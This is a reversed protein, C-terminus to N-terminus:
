TSRFKFSSFPFPFPFPFLTLAEQLKWTVQITEKSILLAILNLIPAISNDLIEM